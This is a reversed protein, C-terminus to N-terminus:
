WEIIGMRLIVSPWDNESNGAYNNYPTGFRDIRVRVTGQQFGNPNYEMNIYMLQTYSEALAGKNRGLTGLSGAFIESQFITMGFAADVNVGQGGSGVIANLDFLASVDTEEWGILDNIGAATVDGGSVSNDDKHIDISERTRQAIFRYQGFDVDFYCRVRVWYFRQYKIGGDNVNFEVRFEMLRPPHNTNPAPPYYPAVGIPTNIIAAGVNVGGIADMDLMQRGNPLGGGISVGDVLEIATEGFNVRAIRLSNGAYAAPTDVLSVFTKGTEEATLRAGIEDMLVKTDEPTTPSAWNSPVAKNHNVQLTDHHTTVKGSQDRHNPQRLIPRIDTIDAEEVVVTATENVYVYAIPIASEPPTPAGGFAVGPSTQPTGVTKQIVGSTDMYILDWREQGIVVTTFAPSTQSASMVLQLTDDSLYSGSGIVIQNGPIAEPKPALSDSHGLNTQRKALQTLGAPM